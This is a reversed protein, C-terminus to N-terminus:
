TKDQIYSAGIEKLFDKILDFEYGRSLASMIAKQVDVAKEKNRIKKHLFSKLNECYLDDEISSLAEIILKDTVGKLRLENKIKLRGWKKIRVRGSVFLKAFQIDDVFREDKLFSLYDDKEETEIGLEQIKRIVERESRPQYNCFAILKNLLLSEM